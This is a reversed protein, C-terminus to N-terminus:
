GGDRGDAGTEDTLQPFVTRQATTARRFPLNSAIGLAPHVVIIAAPLRVAHEMEPTGGAQGRPEHKENPPYSQSCFRHDSVRGAKAPINVTARCELWSIGGLILTLCGYVMEYQQYVYCINVIYIQNQLLIGLRKEVESASVGGIHRFKGCIGLFFTGCPTSLRICVSM